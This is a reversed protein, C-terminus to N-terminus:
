YGEGQFTADGGEWSRGGDTSKLVGAATAAYLTASNGPALALTFAGIRGVRGVELAKWTRGGNTSKFVAADADANTNAYVTTPDMPDLTLAGVSGQLGLAHWSKGGDRSKFAGGPTGAYLTESHQPDMTLTDVRTGQLGAARWTSGGDISKFVGSKALDGGAFADMAGVYITEPDKPDLVVADESTRLGLPRWSAGGNTSKLLGREWTAAYVTEPNRPDVVLAYVYGELLRHDRERATEKGFLGSNAAQWTAGGDASKFIGRGTGAYITQPEAAAIAVSDARTSTSAITLSKWSAGGDTSKFVGADLTAAFVIRPRLPDVALTRIYSRKLGAAALGGAGAQSPLGAGPSPGEGGIKAPTGGGGNFGFYGILAASAAVLVCAGYWRRRRRARRRAEEILAELAEVDAPDDARPPRPTVVSM